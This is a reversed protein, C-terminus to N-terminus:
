DNEWIFLIELHLSSRHPQKNNEFGNTNLLIFMKPEEGIFFFM